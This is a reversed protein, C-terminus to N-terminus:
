KVKEQLIKILHKYADMETLHIDDMSLYLNNTGDDVLHSFPAQRPNEVKGRYMAMAIDVRLCEPSSAVTLIWVKQNKKINHIETVNSKTVVDEDMDFGCAAKVQERSMKKVVQTKADTM